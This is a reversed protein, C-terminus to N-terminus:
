WLNEMYEKRKKNNNKRKEKNIKCKEKVVIGFNIWFKERKNKNNKLYAM